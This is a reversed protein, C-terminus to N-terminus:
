WIFPFVKYKVRRKYDAYGPLGKELVAEENQIRRVILWPYLLFLIFAYLSGLVVPIAACLLITSLYMPHRVVGYLGTDIVRQNEQVEVTRSLYANERLVEAYLGYAAVMLASAAAVLWAPLRSWGFRFDLGAIAFGAVFLIVSGLIVRQQEPEKEQTHLRKLLLEPAKLYLIAGAILMPIFLLAMFLWANWYQLTGAPLFLLLGVLIMGLAWKLLCQLLLNKKM